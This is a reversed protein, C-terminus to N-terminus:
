TSDTQISLLPTPPVRGSGPRGNVGSLNTAPGDVALRANVSVEKSVQFSGAEGPYAEMIQPVSSSGERDPRTGRDVNHCFHEPM